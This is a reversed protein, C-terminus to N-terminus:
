SCPGPKFPLRPPQRTPDACYCGPSGDACLAAWIDITDLLDLDSVQGRAWRDIFDLLEQDDVKNNGNKDAPHPQRDVAVKCAIPACVQQGAQNNYLVLGCFTQEGTASQPARARYTIDMGTDSVAGGFFVWRAEGTMPNFTSQSPTASDLTWGAPLTEVVIVGSPRRSEDVELDLRTELSAGRLYVAPLLRSAVVEGAGPTCTLPVTPTPTATSTMTTTPTPTPSFAVPCISPVSVDSSMVSVPTEPWCGYPNCGPSVTLTYNGPPVNHFVFLGAESPDPGIGTQTSLGLPQLTVTVGRMRGTCSPFETVYGSVSFGVPTATRTPSSACIQLSWGTLTGVDAAARDRVELTWQGAANQGNFLSLGRGEQAEQPQHALGDNCATPSELSLAASDDLSLNFNDNAGCKDALLLVETSSPGRLRFELDQAFPHTAQLNLVNIDGIVTANPVNIVSTISGNDPIGKPIDTSTYTTCAARTPSSTPTRTRTATPSPTNTPIEVPTPAFILFTPGDLGGSGAAVFADIFAGTVGNYRLVSDNLSSSVYLNGDPGFLLGEPGDLGGTRPPVRASIFAGTRGDYCLISDSDFSTVYLNRDPGFALGVPSDLGGSGAPVFADIFAGTRGHYRLVSDTDRSAVYLHGDPGFVLGDAGGLGGSGSSVFADIFAGTFGNYRLV